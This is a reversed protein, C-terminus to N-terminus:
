QQPNPKTKHKKPKPSKDNNQNKDKKVEQKSWEGSGAVSHHQEQHKWIFLSVQVHIKRLKNWRIVLIHFEVEKDIALEQTHRQDRM